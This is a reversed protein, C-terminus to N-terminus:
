RTHAEQRMAPHRGARTVTLAIAASLLGLVGNIVARSDDPGGPGTGFGAAIAAAAHLGGIAVVAWAAGAMGRALAGILGAITLSWVLSWPGLLVLNTVDHFMSDAVALALVGAVACGAGAVPPLTKGRRHAAAAAFAFGATGAALWGGGTWWTGVLAAAALLSAAVMLLM